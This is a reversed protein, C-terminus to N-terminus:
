GLTRRARRLPRAARRHKASVIAKAMAHRRGDLQHVKLVQELKTHRLRSAQKSIGQAHGIDTYSTQPLANRLNRVTQGEIIDLVLRARSLLELKRLEFAREDEDDPREAAEAVLDAIYDFMEALDM